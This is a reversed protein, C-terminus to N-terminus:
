TLRPLYGSLTARGLVNRYIIADHVPRRDAARQTTVANM